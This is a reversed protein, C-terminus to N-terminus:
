LSTVVRILSTFLLRFTKIDLFEFTRQIVGMILNAKNVKENIHNKFKLKNAITVGIDKETKSYEMAKGSEKLKYKYLDTDSNGIRMCKCKNTM